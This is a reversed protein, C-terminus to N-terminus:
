CERRRSTSPAGRVGVGSIEDAELFQRIARFVDRRNMIFTHTGRVVVLPAGPLVTESVRVIGDNPEGGVPIWRAGLGRDGAIVLTPADPRPLVAFFAPDSLKRAADRFVLRWPPRSGLEVMSVPRRNPPALMVFRTLGEPLRPWALRALVGGLSHGIVAFRRDPRGAEADEALVRAVREAFREAIADLDETLILYGFSEPRHGARRLKRALWFM